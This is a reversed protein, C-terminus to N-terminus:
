KGYGPTRTNGFETEVMDNKALETGQRLSWLKLLRELLPAPQTLVDPVSTTGSIEYMLPGNGSGGKRWFSVVTGPELKDAIDWGKGRLMLVAWTWNVKSGDKSPAPVLVDVYAIETSPFPCYPCDHDLCPLSGKATHHMFVRVQEKPWSWVVVKQKAPGASLIPPRSAIAHGSPVKRIGM